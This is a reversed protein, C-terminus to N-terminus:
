AGQGGRRQPRSPRVRVVRDAAAPTQVATQLGSQMGAAPSQLAQDSAERRHGTQPEESSSSSSSSAAATRPAGLAAAHEALLPVPMEALEQATLKAQTCTVLRCCPVAGLPPPALTTVTFMFTHAAGSLQPQM